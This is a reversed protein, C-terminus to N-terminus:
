VKRHDITTTITLILILHKVLEEFSYIHKLEIDDKLYGFSREMPANDWCNGRRSM